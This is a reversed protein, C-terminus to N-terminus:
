PLPSITDRHADGKKWDNTGCHAQLALRPCEFPDVLNSTMAGLDLTLGLYNVCGDSLRHLEISHVIRDKEVHM